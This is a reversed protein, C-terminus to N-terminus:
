RPPRFIEPRRPSAIKLALAHDIEMGRNKLLFAEAPLPIQRCKLTKSLNQCHLPHVLVAIRGQFPLMQIAQQINWAHTEEVRNKWKLYGKYEELLKEAEMRTKRTIYGAMKSQLLRTFKYKYEQYFKETEEYCFLSDRFAAYCIKGPKTRFDTMDQTTTLLKLIFESDAECARRFAQFFGERVEPDGYFIITCPHHYRNEILRALDSLLEVAKTEGIRQLDEGWYEQWFRWSSIMRFNFSNELELRGPLDFMVVEPELSDLVELTRRHLEHATEVAKECRQFAVSVEFINLYPILNV